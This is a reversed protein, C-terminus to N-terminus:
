HPRPDVDSIDGPNHQERILLSAAENVDASARPGLQLRSGIPQGLRDDEPRTQAPPVAFLQKVCETSTSRTALAGSLGFLEPTRADLPELPLNSATRM